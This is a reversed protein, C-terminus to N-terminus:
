IFFMEAMSVRYKFDDSTFDYASEIFYEPLLGQIDKNTKNMFIKTFLLEDDLSCLHNKDKYYNDGNRFDGSAYSMMNFSSDYNIHIKYYNSKFLHKVTISSLSKQVFSICISSDTKGSRLQSINVPSKIANRITVTSSKPDIMTPDLTQVSVSFNSGSNTEVIDRVIQEIIIPDGGFHNFVHHIGDILIKRYKPNFGVGTMSM